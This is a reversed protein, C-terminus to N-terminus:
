RFDLRQRMQTITAKDVTYPVAPVWVLRKLTNPLTILDTEQISKSRTIKLATVSSPLHRLERGLEQDIENCNVWLFRLGQPLMGLQITGNWKM